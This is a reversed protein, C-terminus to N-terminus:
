ALEDSVHQNQQMPDKFLRDVSFRYRRIRRMANFERIWVRSYFNACDPPALIGSAGAFGNGSTISMHRM